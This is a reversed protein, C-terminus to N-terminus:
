VVVHVFRMSMINCSLLWARPIYPVIGNIYLELVSFVLQHFYHDSYRNGRPLYYSPSPLLSVLLFTGDQDPIYTYTCKFYPSKITNHDKGCVMKHLFLKVVINTAQGLTTATPVQLLSCINSLYSLPLSM